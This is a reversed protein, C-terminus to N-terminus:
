VRVQFIDLVRHLAEPAFGLRQNRNQLRQLFMM